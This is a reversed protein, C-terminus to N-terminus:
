TSSRNIKRSTMLPTSTYKVREKGLIPNKNPQPVEESRAQCKREYRTERGLRYGCFVRHDM